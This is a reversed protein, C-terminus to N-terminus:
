VIRKTPLTLHTYSVPDVQNKMLAILPSVVIACGDSIMAPLQYCLSKGGGTPKIVFSDNGNLINHIIPEQNGRFADFGFYQRLPSQLDIASVATTKKDKNKASPM